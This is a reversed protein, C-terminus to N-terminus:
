GTLAISFGSAPTGLNHLCRDLQDHALARHLVVRSQAHRDGLEDAFTGWDLALRQPRVAPDEDPLHQAPVLRAPRAHHRDLGVQALFGLVLAWLLTQRVVVLGGLLIRGRHQLACALLVSSSRAASLSTARSM